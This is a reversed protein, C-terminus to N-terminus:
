ARCPPTLEQFSSMLEQHASVQSLQTQPQCRPARYPHMWVRPLHCTSLQCQLRAQMQLSAPFLAMQARCPSAPCHQMSRPPQPPQPVLMLHLHCRLMWPPCQQTLMLCPSQQLLRWRTLLLLCTGQMYAVKDSATIEPTERECVAHVCVMSLQM